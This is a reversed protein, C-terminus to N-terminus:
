IALPEIRNKIARVISLVTLASTKPNAALPEGQLELTMRGFAGKADIRHLNGAGRPDAVLTVRTADLGLGALAVTAAVNANKPFRAAAERATGSFITTAADIAALDFDQEAPTGRWALPPKSGRYVVEDLGGLRAASLADIGGIAGALLHVQAGGARAAEELAQALAADSLAGISVVLADIGAALAALVHQRIAGHGACEVVLDPRPHAGPDLPPAHRTVIHPDFVIRADDALMAMVSTAIAGGGIMAIRLPPRANADEANM